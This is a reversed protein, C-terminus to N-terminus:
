GVSEPPVPQQRSPPDVLLNHSDKFLAFARHRYKVVLVEGVVPIVGLPHVVLRTFQLKGQSTPRGDRSVEALGLYINSGIRRQLVPEDNSAHGIFSGAKM